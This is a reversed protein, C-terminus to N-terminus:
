ILHRSDLITVVKCLLVKLSTVICVIARLPGTHEMPVLNIGM